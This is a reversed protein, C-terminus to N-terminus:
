SFSEHFLPTVQPPTVVWWALVPLPTPLPQGVGRGTSAQHTTLGWWTACLRLSRKGLSKSPTPLQIRGFLKTMEDMKKGSQGPTFSSGNGGIHYPSFDMDLLRLDWTTYKIFTQLSIPLILQPNFPGVKNTINTTRTNIANINNQLNYIGSSKHTSTQISRGRYLCTELSTFVDIKIRNSM